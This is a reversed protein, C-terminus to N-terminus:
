PHDLWGTDRVAGGRVGAGLGVVGDGYFLNTEYSDEFLVCFVEIMEKPEDSMVASGAEIM